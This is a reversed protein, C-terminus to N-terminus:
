SIIRIAICNDHYSVYRSVNKALVFEQIFFFYTDSKCMYSESVHNDVNSVVLYISSFFISGVNGISERICLSNTQFVTRFIVLDIYQSFFQAPTGRYLICLSKKNM